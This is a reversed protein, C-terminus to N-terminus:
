FRDNETTREGIVEKSLLCFISIRKYIPIHNFIGINYVIYYWQNKHLKISPHPTVIPALKADWGISVM